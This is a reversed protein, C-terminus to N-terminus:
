FEFVEDPKIHRNTFRLVNALKRAEEVIERIQEKVEEMSDGAATVFARSGDLIETTGGEDAQTCFIDAVYKSGPLVHYYVEIRYM